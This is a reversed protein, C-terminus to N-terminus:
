HRKARKEKHLRRIEAVLESIHRKADELERVVPDALPDRLDRDIAALARDRWAELEDIPVSVQRSVAHVSNGRLLRLVIEKKRSVPWLGRDEAAPDEVADSELIGPPLGPTTRNRAKWGYVAVLLCALISIAIALRDWLDQHFDLAITRAGAPLHFTLLGEATRRLKIPENDLRGAWKPSWAVAISAACSTTAQVSIRLHEPDPDILEARSPCQTALLSAPNPQGDRPIVALIAMAAGQWVLSFRPSSLMGSAKAQNVLLVHTVGYSSLKDAVQDPPKSTMSDAAYAPTPTTSSEVNFVNLTNRGSQWAMWFDPHSMGVIRIEGPFDRQMAYRAGDPVLRRLEAAASLAEPTPVVSRVAPRFKDMAIIAFMVAIAVAVLNRLQGTPRTVTTILGALPFVLLLGALGLGRNPIQQSIVNEPAIATMIEGLGLFALPAFVLSFALYRGCFVRWLGYILGVVVVFSVSRQFLIHGNWIDLVRKLLPTHGWGTLIGRLDYHVLIPIVIWASVAVAVAASFGIWGALQKASVSNLPALGAEADSCYKGLKTLLRVRSTWLRVKHDVFKLMFLAVVMAAALILSIGHTAALLAFLVGTLLACYTSPRGMLRLMSGVALCLVVAGALSVTLGVDFIGNLGFGGFPSNVVLSLIAAVSSALRSLGFSRALYGAALPLAAFLLVVAVKFAALITLSGFSIGQVLAILWTFMPGIFLHQQYGLAFSPQWGDLRGNLVFRQIAYEARILHAVTDGGIPPGDSWIGWILWVALSLALVYGLLGEPVCSLTEYARKPMASLNM